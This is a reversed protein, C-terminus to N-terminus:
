KATVPADGGLAKYVAVLSTATRTQNLVVQEQLSLLTRRVNLICWFSRERIFNKQM